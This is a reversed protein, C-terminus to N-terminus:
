PVPTKRHIKLFKWFVKEKLVGGIAAELYEKWLFGWKKIICCMDSATKAM